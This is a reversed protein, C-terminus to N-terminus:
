RDKFSTVSTNRRIVSLPHKKKKYYARIATVNERQLKENIKLEFSILLFCNVSYIRRNQANYPISEGKGCLGKQTTPRPQPSPFIFTRPLPPPSSDTGGGM